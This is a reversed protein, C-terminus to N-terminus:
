QGEQAGIDLKVGLPRRTGFYDNTVPPQSALEADNQAEQPGTRDVVNMLNLTSGPLLRMAETASDFDALSATRLIDCGATFEVSPRSSTVLTDRIRHLGDCRVGNYNDRLTNFAAYGSAGSGLAIGYLESGGLGGSDRVINNVLRYRTSSGGAVGIAIGYGAAKIFSEEVTITTCQPSSNVGRRASRIATNRVSLSANSLCEAANGITPGPPIGTASGLQVGFLLLGGPTRQAADEQVTAGALVAAPQADRGPGLVLASTGTVTFAAYTKSSGLIRITSRRAALAQMVECFPMTSSGAGPQAGDTVCRGSDRNDVYAIASEPVCQGVQVGSDAALSSDTRCVLSSCEEGRQCLRCSHSIADCAPRLTDRTCHEHKGCEQCAGAVCYHLERSWLTSWTTCEQDQMCSVCSQNLCVPGTPASCQAITACKGDPRKCRGSDADCVLLEGSDKSCIEPFNGCNNPNPVPAFLADCSVTVLISVLFFSYYGRM